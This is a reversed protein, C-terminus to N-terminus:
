LSRDGLFFARGHLDALLQLQHGEHDPAKLASVLRLDHFHQFVCLLGVALLGKSLMSVEPCVPLFLLGFM